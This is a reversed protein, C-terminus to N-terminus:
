ESISIVSRIAQAIYKASNKAQQLSNANHGVEILVCMDSVQQNYRGKKVRITRTFGKQIKELEKTIALALKYNSEYNPKGDLGTGTYKEGTGVVFMVRACQKGDVTVYDKRGADTDGYADRHLDIYVRLNPYLKVYKKMTALSRSYATTLSPPEHETTDHLVSFGHQELCSKLEEGVACVSENKDKTRWVGSEVYENAVTQLYAEDTHTHYILIQPGVPNISFQKPEKSFQLIQMKISDPLVDFDIGQESDTDGESEIERIDVGYIVPIEQSLVFRNIDSIGGYLDGNEEASFSVDNFATKKDAREGAKDVFFFSMVILVAIFIAATIEIYLFNKRQKEIKVDMRHVPKANRRYSDMNVGRIFLIRPYARTNCILVNCDSFRKM